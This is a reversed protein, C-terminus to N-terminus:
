SSWIVAQTHAHPGLAAAVDKGDDGSERQMNEQSVKANQLTKSLSPPPTPFKPGPFSDLIRKLEKYGPPTM